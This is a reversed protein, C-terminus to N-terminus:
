RDCDGTLATGDSAAGAVNRSIDDATEVVDSDVGGRRLLRGIAGLRRSTERSDSAVERLEDQLCPDEENPTETAALSASAAGSAQASASGNAVNANGQMNVAVQLAALLSESVMGDAPELNNRIQFTTIAVTLKQNETGLEGTDYDLARLMSHARSLDDGSATNQSEPPEFEVNDVVLQAYATSTLALIVGVSGGVVFNRCRMIPNM